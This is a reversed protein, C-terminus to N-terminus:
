LDEALAESRVISICLHLVKQRYREMLGELVAHRDGRALAALLDADREMATSIVPLPTRAGSNMNVAAQVGKISGLPIAPQLCGRCGSEPRAPIM